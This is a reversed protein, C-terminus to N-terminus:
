AGDVTKAESAEGEGVAQEQMQIQNRLSLIEKNLRELIQAEQPDALSRDSPGLHGPRNNTIRVPQDQNIQQWAEHTLIIYAPTDNEVVAVAPLSRLLDRIEQSIM